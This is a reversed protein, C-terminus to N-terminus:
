SKVACRTRKRYRAPTCGKAAIFRNVFYDTDHYGVKEAIQYTKENTYVLLQAAQQIRIGNLYDRFSQGYNKRFIQGLYATNIYYKESLEKLTLNEAYHVHMEKEVERIVGNSAGRRLQMLYDGYACAFKYLHAQSGRFPEQEATNESILRLIEEQDVGDDQRGALHVLYFLLYNINLSVMKDPIKMQKMKQYFLAVAEKIKVHDNEEIVCLLMTLNDKYLVIETGTIQVEKEYYYIEKIEQFGLCFHLICTSTYSKAIDEIKEVKKGVIMILPIGTSEKVFAFFKQLYEKETFHQNRALHDSYVFGIDTMKFIDRVCYEADEKLFAVAANYVKKQFIKKEHDTHEEDSKGEAIQLEIYRMNEPMQLHEKVCILDTHDYKGAILARLSKNLFSCEM